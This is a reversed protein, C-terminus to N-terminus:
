VVTAFTQLVGTLELMGSKQPADGKTRHSDRPSCPEQLMGPRQRQISILIKRLQSSCFPGSKAAPIKSTGECCVICRPIRYGQTPANDKAEKLAPFLRASPRKSPFMADQADSTVLPEPTGAGVYFSESLEVSWHFWSRPQKSPLFFLPSPLCSQWCHTQWVLM